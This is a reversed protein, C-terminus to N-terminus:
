VFGGYQQGVDVREVAGVERYGVNCPQYSRRRNKYLLVLWYHDVYQQQRNEAVENRKELWVIEENKFNEYKSNNLQKKIAKYINNLEKNWVEFKEEEIEIMKLDSEEELLSKSTSVNEELDDLKKLYEYKYLYEIGNDIKESHVDDILESALDIEYTKGYKIDKNNSCATTFIGVVILLVMLRKM